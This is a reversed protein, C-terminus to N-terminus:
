VATFHPASHSVYPHFPDRGCFGCLVPVTDRRWTLAAACCQIHPLSFMRPVPPVRGLANRWYVSRGLLLLAWCGVVPRTHPGHAVAFVYWRGHVCVRAHGPQGDAAVHPVRGDRCACLVTLCYLMAAVTRAVGRSVACHRGVSTLHCVVFDCGNGFYYVTVACASVGM